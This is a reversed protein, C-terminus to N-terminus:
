KPARLVPKGAKDDFTTTCGPYGTCGWFFKKDPRRQKRVMPKTCTPCQQTDAPIAAARGGEGAAPAPAPLRRLEAQLTADADRVVDLYRAQGIAIQDLREEMHKTYGLDMFSFHPKLADYVRYGLDTPKLRKKDVVVYGRSTIGAMIQAYTAPRGVGAEELARVLSAKSYRNPPQTQHTRVTGDIVRLPLDVPLAPVPNAARGGEGAREEDDDLEAVGAQLARWGTFALTRGVAVFALPTDGEHDTSALEVERVAYEADALQCAIARIRILRYLAQQEPTDGAEEVEVHTPRTAEHGEQASAKAKWRRPAPALTLGHAQVYNNIDAIAEDSLNPDDTRHYTIHGHDFLAQAHTMTTEPDYGLAVSAAQQLTSTIFPAPPAESETRESCSLVRVARTAAAKAAVARDFWLKEAGEEEQLGTFQWTASWQGADGAFQLVASFHTRSVFAQIAREREVVLALAPSQVRGASVGRQDLARSLPGSVQYGVLRDIVRRAGQAIVRGMDIRRSSALAANVASETVRNFCIREPNKLRLVEALHWSIAEGERDPDTALLVRASSQCLKKLWSITKASRDKIEYQAIYEPPAVGMDREPLDRVHGYCAAVKYQPGLIAQLKELKGPSEIIVLTTM